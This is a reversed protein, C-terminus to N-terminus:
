SGPEYEAFIRIGDVYHTTNGGFTIKMAAYTAYFTFNYQVKHWTTDLSIGVGVAGAGADFYAGLIPSGSVGKEWFEVSIRQGNYRAPVDYALGEYTDTGVVKCAYSRNYKTTDAEGTGTKTLTASFNTFHDPVGDTWDELDCNDNITVRANFVGYGHETTSPNSIDVANSTESYNTISSTRTNKIPCNVSDASISISDLYGRTEVNICITDLAVGNCRPSDIIADKCSVLHIKSGTPYTVSGETHLGFIRLGICNIAHVAEVSHGESIGGIINNNGENNQDGIYYGYQGGETVCNIFNNANCATSSGTHRILYFGYRFSKTETGIAVLNVSPRLNIFSNGIGGRIVFFDYGCGASEINEFTSRSVRTLDIAHYAGAVTAVSMNGIYIGTTDGDDDGIEFLSTASTLQILRTVGAGSGSLRLPKGYARTIASSCQFLGESLAVWGYPSSAVADFAAQIQVDDAVGDCIWVLVGASQLTEALATVLSQANSAVVYAAVGLSGLALEAKVQAVTRGELRDKNWRAYEGDNPRGYRGIGGGGQTGRSSVAAVRALGQNVFDKTAVGSGLVNIIDHGGMDLNREQVGLASDTNQEHSYPVLAQLPKIVDRFTRLTEDLNAPKPIQSLQSQLRAADAEVKQLKVELQDASAINKVLRKAKPPKGGKHPNLEGFVRKTASFRM